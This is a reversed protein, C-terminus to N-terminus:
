KQYDFVSMLYKRGSKINEKIQVYFVGGGRAKGKFRYLVENAKNPNAKKSPRIRSTRILELACPLLKARSKRIGPSKQNLHIWFYTFFVKQKNFYASRVYPSRKTKKEVLKRLRRVEWWVEAESSGRIKGAKCQYSEM